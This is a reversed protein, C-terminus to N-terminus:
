KRFVMAPDLGAIQQVPLIAAISAIILSVGSVKILSIPSIELTLNLGLLPIVASLLLTFGAGTVFGLLVSILAQVIVTKYLNGNHAGIAKLVGYERRRSLTTTYISLAMVALGILFGVLNMITIIDTSMDRVVIREQEAFEESPLATVGDVLEEIQAAVAASSEGPVMKVLLFSVSDASGRLRAFDSLPIFAISNILSATEKSLGAIIFETGLIEVRDGVGVGSKEAVGADIVAKGPELQETGAAILWPGGMEADDPLGIIYALNREEKLVVMNSVYLIPTVEQVGAVAKV